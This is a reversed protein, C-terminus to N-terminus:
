KGILMSKLAEDVSLPSLGPFTKLLKTASIRRHSIDRGTLRPVSRIEVSNKFINAIVSAIEGFTRPHGSSVNLLGTIQNQLCLLIVRIVDQIFVHDRLEEGDGYLEIYGKSLATRIFRTPGYFDHLDMPGYISAPRLIMLPIGAVVCTHSLILERSLHMMGYLSQPTPLVDELCPSQYDEYVGNASLYILYKPLNKKIAASLVHAMRVNSLFTGSSSGRDPSICASFVIATNSSFYQALKDISLENAMDIETSVPFHVKEGAGKLERVLNSGVYGSGGFIVISDFSSPASM